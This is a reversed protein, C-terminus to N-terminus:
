SAAAVWLYQRSRRDFPSRDYDGYQEVPRLGSLPLLLRLENPFTMQWALDITQREITGDSAHIEYHYVTDDVQRVPDYRETGYRLIRRIAASPESLDFDLRMPATRESVALWAVQPVLFDFAFRGEPALHRRVAQLCGLQDDQGIVFAFGNFAIFILDFERGLDFQTMDGHLLEVALAADPESKLRRAAAALFPQSIDLGVVRANPRHSLARKAVPVLLRGTGCGLELIREPRLTDVLSEWYAVDATYAGIEADLLEAEDVVASYYETELIPNLPPFRV